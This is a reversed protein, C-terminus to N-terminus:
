PVSRTGLCNPDAECGYADGMGWVVLHAEGGRAVALEAAVLLWKQEASLGDAGRLRLNAAEFIPPSISGDDALRYRREGIVLEAGVVRPTDGAFMGDPQSRVHGDDDISFSLDPEGDVVLRRAELRGGTRRFTPASMRLDPVTMVIEGDPRVTTIKRVRGEVELWLGPQSATRSSSTSAASVSGAPVDRSPPADRPACAALVLAFAVAFVHPRSMTVAM